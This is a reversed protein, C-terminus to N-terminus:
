FVTFTWSYSRATDPGDVEKWFVVKVTHVGAGFADIDQDAGPTFTLTANGPEYRAGPPFAVQEGPEVEQSGVEDLRVTPLEVGDIMLYGYYGGLLDAVITAQQPVQIAEFSPTVEEVAAPMNSADDGTVSKGLAYGILVVGLAIVLSAVLLKKDLRRWWSGQRPAPPADIRDLEGGPEDPVVLEDSPTTV